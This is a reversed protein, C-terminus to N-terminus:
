RVALLFFSFRRRGAVADSKAVRDFEVSFRRVCEPRSEASGGRSRSLWGSSRTHDALGLSPGVRTQCFRDSRFHSIQGELPPENRWPRPVSSWLAAVGAVLM